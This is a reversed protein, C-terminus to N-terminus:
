KDTHLLRRRRSLAEKLLYVAWLTEPDGCGEASAILEELERIEAEVNGPKKEEDM